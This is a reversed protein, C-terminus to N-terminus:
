KVEEISIVESGEFVNRIDDESRGAIVSKNLDGSASRFYILYDRMIVPVIAAKNDPRPLIAGDAVLQNEVAARIYVSRNTRRTRDLVELLKNDIEIHVLM